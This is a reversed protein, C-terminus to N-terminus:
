SKRRFPQLLSLLTVGTTLFLQVRNWLNTTDTTKSLVQQKAGPQLNYISQINLM